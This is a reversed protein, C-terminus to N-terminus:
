NWCSLNQYNALSHCQIITPGELIPYFRFYPLLHLRMTNCRKNFKFDPDLVRNAVIQNQNPNSSLLWYLVIQSDSWMSMELKIGLPKLASIIAMALRITDLFAAMGQRSSQFRKRIISIPWLEMRGSIQMSSFM